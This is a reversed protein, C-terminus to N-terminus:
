ADPVPGGRWVIVGLRKLTEVEDLVLYPEGEVQAPILVKEVDLDQRYVLLKKRESWWGVVPSGAPANAGDDVAVIDCETVYGQRAVEASLLGDKRLSFFRLEDPSLGLLELHQRPVAVAARAEDQTDSNELVFEQWVRDVVAPDLDNAASYALAFLYITPLDFAHSFGELQRLSPGSQVRGREIVSVTSPSLKGQSHKAVDAVGLGRSERVKRIYTGFDFPWADPFLVDKM